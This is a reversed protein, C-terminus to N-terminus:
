VPQAPCGIFRSGAPLHEGKMALSLPGLESGRGLVSDYLVVSGAGVHAGAEITVPGLKMVRDEFLHTQLTVGPGMAADDGIHIMDLECLYATELYVRHGVKAGLLRMYLPLFPTGLFPGLVWGALADYLSTVFEIRWVATSWLPHIGPRFRGIVGWKVCALLLAASVCIVLPGLGLWLLALWLSSVALAHAALWLAGVTATGTIGGQVLIRLAEIVARTAILRSTPAVTYAESIGEVKQRRPLRVPPLGLWDTQRNADLPATSLVGVLCNDPLDAGAPLFASNGVFTDHGVRTPAFRVLGGHIAPSGVLSADALFARDGVELQEPVVHAVTSVECAHGIKAGLLRLWTASFLSGYVTYLQEVAMRHVRDAFWRHCEVMSDLRVSARGVVPPVLRRAGLLVLATWPMCVAGGVVGALILLPGMRAIPLETGLVLAFAVALPLLTLFRVLSLGALGLLYRGARPRLPGDARGVMWDPRSSPGAPSGAWVADAPVVAGDILCSRADLGAGAELASGLGVISAAGVTANSGIAVTGIEIHGARVHHTLLLTDEGVTAHDGITILDWLMGGHCGLFSGHGIRGGMARAYLRMLPTGAIWSMPLAAEIHSVMWWRWHWLGWLRHRGPRVRGLLLWKAAIALAFSVPLAAISLGAMIVFSLPSLRGTMGHHVLVGLMVLMPLGGLATVLPLTMAQALGFALHRRTSARRTESTVKPTPPAALVQALGRVTPNLYLARVTAGPHRQRLRSIASAAALSHGGLDMFFDADRARIPRGLAQAFADAVEEEAEGQPPDGIDEPVDRPTPEPLERRDIKGGVTRTMAPVKVLFSPRMYAPVSAAVHAAITNRDATGVYWIVISDVGAVPRVAAAALQVGPCGAAIAEIEGLEIRFGRLKVQNDVRGLFDVRGDILPRGLDGTAYLRQGAADVKFRKATEEPRNLYGDALAPGGIHIEGTEGVPVPLGDPGLVLVRYGPLGRGITVPQGARAEDATAVVSAETPGYTNLMRRGPAWRDVLAASCTEGGVVLLRVDPLDEDILGLLTPVTSFFTARRCRLESALLQPDRMVLGSAPLLCAGAAVALWVEEVSADFALSFGQWVRDTEALQYVQSAGRVYTMVAGHSLVVGKPLGTTGSTFILYCTDAPTAPLVADPLGHASVIPDDLLATGILDEPAVSAVGPVAFDGAADVMLLSDSQEAISAVRAAPWSADIPIYAARRLLIGFLCAYLEATGRGRLMIRAGPGVGRAALTAAVRRAREGMDGWTLMFGDGTEVAPLAPTAAVRALFLAALTQAGALGHHPGGPQQGPGEAEMREAILSGSLM